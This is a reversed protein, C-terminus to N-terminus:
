MGQRGKKIEELGCQPKLYWRKVSAARVLTVLPRGTLLDLPWKKTRMKFLEKAAHPMTSWEIEQFVRREQNWMVTNQNEGGRWTLQQQEKSDNNNTESM